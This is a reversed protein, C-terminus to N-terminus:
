SKPPQERELRGSAHSAGRLGGIQHRHHTAIRWSQWSITKRPNVRHNSSLPPRSTARVLINWSGEKSKTHKRKAHGESLRLYKLKGKRHLSGWGGHVLVTTSNAATARDTVCQTHSALNHKAHMSVSTCYLISAMGICWGLLCADEHAQSSMHRYLQQAM